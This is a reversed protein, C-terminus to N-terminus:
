EEEQNTQVDAMIKLQSFTEAWNEPEAVFTSGGADRIKQLKHAQLKTAKGGARKFEIAVFHGLICLVVDPDGRKSIQQISFSYTHPLTDIEKQARKRFLTEPKM